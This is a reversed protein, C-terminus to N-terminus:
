QGWIEKFDGKMVSDIFEIDNEFYLSPINFVEISQRIRMDVNLNLGKLGYNNVPSWPAAIGSKLNLPEVAVIKPVIHWESLRSIHIHRAGLHPAYIAVERSIKRTSTSRM